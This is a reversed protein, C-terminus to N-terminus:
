YKRRCAALSRRLRIRRGNALAVTARVVWRRAHGFAGAGIRVRTRAAVRRRGVYITVRGHGAGTVRVLVGHGACRLSLEPRALAAPQVSVDFRGAPLELTVATRGVTARAGTVASGAGYEGTLRLTVASDTQGSLHQALGPTWGMRRTDLVMDAVHTLRLAVTNAMASPPTVDQGDLRYPGLQDVSAGAPIAATKDLRTTRSATVTGDAAGPALLIGGVWYARNYAIGFRPQQMSRIVKYTVAVPNAQRRPLGGLWGTVWPGTSGPFSTEHQRDPYFVYRYTADGQERYLGMWHEAGSAPVLEDAGGHVVLLPVDRTNGFLDVLNYGCGAGQETSCSPPIPDAPYVWFTDPVVPGSWIVARAFLDPYLQALRWTGFGGMSMGALYVRDPDIAYHSAVDRWVEFVDKEAEGEYWGGEGRALPMVVIVGLKEAWDALGPMSTLSYSMYNGGLFHLLVVMAGSRHRPVYIAYPQYPSRYLNPPSAGTDQGYRSQLTVGRGLPQGSRFVRSFLGGTPGSYVPCTAGQGCGGRTLAGFDVNFADDAFSGTAIDASQKADRWYSTMQEAPVYALDYYPALGGGPDRWTGTVPNWLGAAVFVRQVSAGPDYVSRPLRVAFLAQGADGVADVPRGDFTATQGHVLLMHGDIRAIVATLAPDNLTNLRVLLYWAHQDAALRTEVIDAANRAYVADSPYAADGNAGGTLPGANGEAANAGWGPGVVGESPDANPRSDAGHDDFPNDTVIVEGRSYVIGGPVDSPTGAWDRLPTVAGTAPSPDLPPGGVPAGSPAAARVPAAHAAALSAAGAALALM